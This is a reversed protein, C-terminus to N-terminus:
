QQVSWPFLHHSARLMWMAKAIQDFVAPAAPREAV